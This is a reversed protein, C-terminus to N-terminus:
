IKHALQGKEDEAIIIVPTYTVQQSAYHAIAERYDTIKSYVDVGKCDSPPKYVNVVNMRVVDGSIAMEFAKIHM